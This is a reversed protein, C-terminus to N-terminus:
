GACGIQIVCATVQRLRRGPVGSFVAHGRGFRRPLRFGALVADRVGGDERWPRFTAVSAVGRRQLLTAAGHRLDHLRIPPLGALYAIQEFMDTVAAPHLPSGDPDTFEFGSDTWSDGAAQKEKDQQQRHARFTTVTDCDLAVQRVGNGGSERKV